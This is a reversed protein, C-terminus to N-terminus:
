GGLLAEMADAVRIRFHPVVDAQLVWKAPDVLALRQGEPGLSVEHERSRDLRASFCWAPRPRQYFRRWVLDASTLRVGIEERTERLVCDEPSESGERGGGPLDWLGPWPLGPKDDRQITVIRRGVLLVLKAGVFDTEPWDMCYDVMRAM